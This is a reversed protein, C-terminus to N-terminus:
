RCVRRRVLVATAVGALHIAALPEPVTRGAEINRVPTAQASTIQGYNAALLLLDAFDVVTDGNFNAQSWSTRPLNYNTALTLLDDFGVQHDLNADGFFTNAEVTVWQNVDLQNVSGDRTLDYTGTPAGFHAFLLDIDAAALAGSNDFDSRLGPTTRLTLTTTAGSTSWFFYDAFQMPLSAADLSNFRLVGQSFRNAFYSANAPSEITGRSGSTFDISDNASGDNGFRLPDASGLILRAATASPAFRLTKKGTTPASLSFAVAEASITGGTVDISGSGLNLTLLRSGLNVTGSEVALKANDVAFDTATSIVTGGRVYLQAFNTLGATTGTFRLNGALHSVIMSSLRTNSFGDTSISGTVQQTPKGANWSAALNVERNGTRLTTDYVGNTLTIARSLNANLDIAALRYTRGQDIVTIGHRGKFARLSTAGSASATLTQNTWWQSFVLDLYAQGNPRISWDANYLAANPKNIKGAWFGWMLFAEASPDAFVATMFDRTYDRQLIQDTSDFDFETIHIPAHYANRYYNLVDWVQEPALPAKNSETPLSSFHSQIGIGDVIGGNSRIADVQAKLAAPQPDLLGQGAFISFDNVMHLADPAAVRAARFWRARLDARSTITPEGQPTFGILKDEIDFSTRPENLTDWAYVKGQFRTGITNIHSFTADYLSQLQATSPSPANLILAISDPVSEVRPWMMAHGRVSLARARLWDTGATALTEGDNDVWMNWKMHNEFVATNYLQPIKAAYTADYEAYGPTFYRPDVATGFKFAHSQQVVRVSAGVAPTCDARTFTFALDAKRNADIMSAATARWGSGAPTDRGTYALAHSPALAVVAAAIVLAHALRNLM